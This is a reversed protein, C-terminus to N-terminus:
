FTMVDPGQVLQGTSAYVKIIYYSGSPTLSANQWILFSGTITGNSDLPVSSVAGKGIQTNSSTKSDASLCIDVHGSDVPTGDSNLFQLAPLTIQAM